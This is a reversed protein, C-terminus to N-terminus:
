AVNLDLIRCLMVIKRPWDMVVDVISHKGRTHCVLQMAQVRYQVGVIRHRDRKIAREQLDIRDLLRPVHVMAELIDSLSYHTGAINRQFTSCGGKRQTWVSFVLSPAITPVRLMDAFVVTLNRLIKLPFGDIMDLPDRSRLVSISNNLAM